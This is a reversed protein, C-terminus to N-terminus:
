EEIHGTIVKQWGIAESPCVQACSECHVCLDQNIRAAGEMTIAGNPCAAMCAGCFICDDTVQYIEYFINGNDDVSGGAVKELKEDKIRNEEM